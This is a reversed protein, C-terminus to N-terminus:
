HQSKHCHSLFNFNTRFVRTYPFKLLKRLLKLSTM